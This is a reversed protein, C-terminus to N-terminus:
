GHAPAGPTPSRRLAAHISGLLLEPPMDKYLPPVCHLETMYKPVRPDNRLNTYPVVILDPAINRLLICTDFGDLYPLDIDLILLDPPQGKAMSSRVMDLGDLGDLASLIRWEPPLLAKIIEAIFPDDDIVQITTM